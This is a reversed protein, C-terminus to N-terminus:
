IKSIMLAIPRPLSHVVSKLDSSKIMMHNKLHSNLWLFFSSDHSGVFTSAHWAGTFTRYGLIFAGGTAVHKRLVNFDKVQYKRVSFHGDSINQLASKLDWWHVGTYEQGDKGDSYKCEEKLLRIHSKYSVSWGLWKLINLVAVPGCDSKTKQHIYRPM